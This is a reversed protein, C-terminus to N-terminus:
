FLEKEKRLCINEPSLNKRVAEKIAQNALKDAKKNKERPINKLEIKKFKKCLVALQEFLMRLHPEKVKYEGKIQKALLESDLNIKIAEVGLNLSEELGYLLAMYEAVNNTAEGIYKGFEKIIKKNDGCIIVGIGAKGPNGWSAGDTFIEVKKIRM